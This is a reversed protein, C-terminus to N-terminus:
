LKAIVDAKILINRLLTVVEPQTGPIGGRVVLIGTIDTTMSPLLLLVAERVLRKIRNRRTARKDVKTPVIVAFAKKAPTREFVLEIAGERVKKGRRLLPLIM